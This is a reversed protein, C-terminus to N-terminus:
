NGAIRVVRARDESLGNLTQSEISPRSLRRTISEEYTTVILQKLTPSTKSVSVLLSALARRNRPDLHELPEDFLLFDCKSIMQAALLRVIVQVITRESGSWESYPVVRGSGSLSFDGNESMTIDGPLHLLNWRKSMERSLPDVQEATITSAVRRLTSATLRDREVAEYDKQLKRSLEDNAKRNERTSRVIALSNQLDRVEAELVAAADRLNQQSEQLQSLEESPREASPAAPFVPAPADVLEQLQSIVVALKDADASLAVRLRTLEQGRSLHSSRAEEAEQATMPRLCVPCVAAGRDLDKLARQSAALSEAVGGIQMMLNERGGRLAVLETQARDRPRVESDALPASVAGGMQLLANVAQDTEISWREFLALQRDFESWATVLALRKDSSAILERAQDLKRSVAELRLVLQEETADDEKAPKDRLDKRLTDTERDLRDAEAELGSAHTELRDIGFARKLAAAVNSGADNSPMISGEPLICLLALTTSDVGYLEELL